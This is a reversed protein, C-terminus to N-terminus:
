IGLLPMSLALIEKVDDEDALRINNDARGKHLMHQSLNLFESPSNPARGGVLHKIDLNVLLRKLKISLEGTNYCGLERCLKLLRGDDAGANFELIAPLTFSCAIGHPLGYRSTLPYSISHALATRTKSIAIGAYTSALQLQLLSDLHGNAYTSLALHELSLSLSETALAITSKNANRNWISEFAHSMTDLGSIVGIETPLSSLLTPDLIAVDPYCKDSCLSYKTCKSRSWVTAFPTVESGTGATTPIAILEISRHGHLPISEDFFSEVSLSLGSGIFIALTKATDIVSGGGIAILTEVGSDSFRDILNSIDQIDPHSPVDSFVMLDEVGCQDSLFCQVKYIREITKSTILLVKGSMQRAALQKKWSDTKILTPIGESHAQIM